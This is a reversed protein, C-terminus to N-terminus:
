NGILAEAEKRLLELALRRNWAPSQALEAAAIENAKQLHGKAEDSHGRHHETMALFYHDYPMSSDEYAPAELVESLVIHAEDLDGARFLIAGLGGKFQGNEPEAAVAKRSFEIAIRYDDIADPALACTWATCSVTALETTDCLQNVLGLCIEQYSHRKSCALAVLAAQHCTSIDAQGSNLIADFDAHAGEYQQLRLHVAARQQYFHPLPEIAIAHDFDSLAEQDRQFHDLLIKGRDCWSWANRPNLELARAYGALAEDYKGQKALVASRVAYAEDNAPDLEMAHNCHRVAAELQLNRYAVMGLSVELVADVPFKEAATAAWRAALGPRAHPAPSQGFALERQWYRVEQLPPTNELARQLAQEYLRDADSRQGAREYLGAIRWCDQPTEAPPLEDQIRAAEPFEGRKVLVDILRVRLENRRQLYDPVEPFDAALRTLIQEAQVMLESAFRTDRQVFFTAATVLAQANWSKGFRTTDRELAERAGAVAKRFYQDALEPDTETFTNAFNIALRIKHREDGTGQVSSLTDLLRDSDETLIKLTAYDRSIAALTALGERSQVQKLIILRQFTKDRDPADMKALIDAWDRVQEFQQRAANHDQDVYLDLHGLALMAAFRPEDYWWADPHEQALPTLIKIAQM